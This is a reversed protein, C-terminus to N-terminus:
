SHNLNLLPKTAEYVAKAIEQVRNKSFRDNEHAETIPGTPGKMYNFAQKSSTVNGDNGVRVTTQTNKDTHILTTGDTNFIVNFFEAEAHASISIEKSKERIEALLEGNYSGALGFAKYIPVAQEGHVDKYPM